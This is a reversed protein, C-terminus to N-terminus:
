DINGQLFKKLVTSIKPGDVYNYVSDYKSIVDTALQHDPGFEPDMIKIGFYCVLGKMAEKYPLKIKSLSTLYKPFVKELAAVHCGGYETYRTNCFSVIETTTDEIHTFAIEIGDGILHVPEYLPESKIEDMLLGLLGDNSQYTVGEFIVRLGDNRAVSYRIAKKIYDVNFSYHGNFCVKDLMFSIEVGDKESTFGEEIGAPLGKRCNVSTFRGNMFSTFGFRESLINIFYIPYDTYYTMRHMKVYSETDMRGCQLHPGFIVRSLEEESEKGSGYVRLRVTGDDLDLDVEKGSEASAYDLASRIITYIDDGPNSGDKGAVLMGPRRRFYEIIAKQDNTLRM